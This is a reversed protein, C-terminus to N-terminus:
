VGGCMCGCKCGCVHFRAVGDGEGEEEGDGKGDEKRPAQVLRARAGHACLHVLQHVPAIHLRLPAPPLPTAATATPSPFHPSPPILLHTCPPLPLPPILLPLLLPHLKLTHNMLM